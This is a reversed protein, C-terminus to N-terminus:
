ADLRMSCRHCIRSTSTSSAPSMTKSPKKSSITEGEAKPIVDELRSIGERKLLRAIGARSIATNIYERTIYLMDDLPLYLWQRLSLM